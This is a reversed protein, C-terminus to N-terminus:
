RRTATVIALPAYEGVFRDREVSVDFDYWRLVREAEPLLFTLYFMVFPPSVIANRVRMVANFTKGVMNSRSWKPPEDTTLFVFRGGVKLARRINGVFRSHDERQIHGVAGFCTVLDFGAVLSADTHLELVDRRLLEVGLADAQREAIDLMGQSFDVGVIRGDVVARLPPLATGTGCCLDLAAHIGADQLPELAQAIIETPTCFTTTEFQPALLDYGQETGSLAQRCLEYFSPGPQGDRGFM